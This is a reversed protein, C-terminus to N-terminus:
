ELPDKNEDILKPPEDYGRRSSYFLLVMLGVGILLSFFIGLGMAIYAHNSVPTEDGVTLGDYAFWASAGLLVLLIVTLLMTGIRM